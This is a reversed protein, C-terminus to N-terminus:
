AGTCFATEAAAELEGQAVYTGDVNIMVLV